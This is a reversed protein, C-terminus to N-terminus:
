VFQATIILIVALPVEWSRVFINWPAESPLQLARRCLLGLGCMVLGDALLILVGRRGSALGVASGILVSLTILAVALRPRLRAKTWPWGLVQGLSPFIILSAAFTGLMLSALAWTHIESHLLDEPNELAANSPDVSSYYVDVSDGVNKHSGQFVQEIRKGNASYNVTISLHQRRDVGVITGKAIAWSRSLSVLKGAGFFVWTGAYLVAVCVIWISLIRTLSKRM